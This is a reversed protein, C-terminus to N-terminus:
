DTFKEPFQQVIGDALVAAVDPMHQAAIRLKTYQSPDKAAQADIADFLTGAHHKLADEITAADFKPNAGTLFAAFDHAYGDLDDRAKMKGADDGTAAANTYDVFFQIHSRWLGLFTSGAQDGYVSGIAESLAVSNEDLTDAAPQLDNGALATGTAIGALYVHEELLNTLTARLDAAKTSASPTSESIPQTVRESSPSSAASSDDDDGGCAAIGLGLATVLALSTLVHRRRFRPNRSM